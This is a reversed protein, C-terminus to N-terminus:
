RSSASTRPRGTRSGTPLRLRMAPHMHLGDLQSVPVWRVHCSERSTRLEGGTMKARFCISFEQRVEGNDYAIVHRPDSYIGSLGTVEIEIGTEEAVERRAAETLSEGIDQAGGPLAWLGNDARQIMLIEHHENQVVATVAPVISNVKPAEADDYYDRKPTGAERTRTRYRQRGSRTSATKTPPSCRGPLCAVPKV